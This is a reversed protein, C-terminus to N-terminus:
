EPSVLVGKELKYVREAAARLAAQHSIALITVQGKLTRLTECIAQETDPDLSTTVEDLILLSPKAALARAIAIRQRQGGSLKSGREGVLADMGEPLSEVFGWAGAAQLVEKVRERSISNDGLTVNRYISDHFLFMEQPVYGIRRRWAHVDFENLDVGDVLIRGRNPRYLGVLLDVLTTKGAGSAGIVAVFSGAPIDMDVGRLVPPNEGYAYDVQQLTLGQKLHDLRRDGSPPEAANEADDIEKYISWFASEGVAVAQYYRLVQNMQNVLRSFLFALMLLSAFPIDVYTMVVYLGVALIVVAIPEQLATVTQTAIVRQRQAQNM